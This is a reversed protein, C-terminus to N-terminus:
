ASYAGQRYLRRRRRRSVLRVLDDARRRAASWSLRGYDQALRDAYEQALLLRGYSDQNLM